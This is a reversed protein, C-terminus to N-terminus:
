GGKMEGEIEAILGKTREIMEAARDGYTEYNRLAALAYERADALRGAQALAVAVNRRTEAARYLNGAGEHYRIAERYHPLARDLDGANRYVEGLNNHTVALDDVANPPLLALAQLYFQMADDLHRLLEQEPQKAARANNFREYAVHGLAYTLKGRGLHDREDHLELGHRYWREAQALNRLAPLTLYAHGLNFATVAAHPQDGIREAMQMAEEFSQVCEAKGLEEQIRGLEHLSGGLTRIANRGVDDLSEPPAALAPVARRRNWDVCVRQLREAEAWQRAERALRVRYETVLSWEEERGARPGDTQPDVFDPVIENVLRAWEARRGTHDYLQDLGEMTSIVRWWWGNARALQRAHLLNAEEATLAGIVDRNGSEYERGYYNGLEGMAEVFARTPSPHPIAERSSPHIPKEEDKMRGGEDKAETPYYTDFLSKFYWPLAPHISYCGGGHATLLGIEAARDLLAIGAERTIGRVEPLCYDAKPNGMARLADV